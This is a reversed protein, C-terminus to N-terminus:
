QNLSMVWYITFFTSIYGLTFIFAVKDVMLVDVRQGCVYGNSYKLIALLVGFEAIGFHIPLLSGIFWIDMYSIGRTSPANTSVYNNIAILNLTILLGMRGPVSDVPILYSVLTLVAYTFSPMYFETILSHLANRTRRIRILTNTQSYSYNLKLPSAHTSSPLSDIKVDFKLRDPNGEYVYGHNKENFFVEPKSLLIHKDIGIDNMLKMTCNHSDFPFNGFKMGCSLSISYILTWYFDHPDKYWIEKLGENALTVDFSNLFLFRPKWVFNFEDGIVGYWPYNTPLNDPDFLLSVRTDKWHIVFTLYLRIIQLEEDIGKIDNIAMSISINAPSPQPYDVISYNDFKTCLFASNSKNTSTACIPLSVTQCFAQFPIAFVVFFTQYFPLVM